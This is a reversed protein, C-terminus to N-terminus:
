GFVLSMLSSLEQVQEGALLEAGTGALSAYEVGNFIEAISLQTNYRLDGVQPTAPRSDNDGKPLTIGATGAFEVYGTGLNQFIIPTSANLNTLESVGFSLDDMIVEGTGNPTLVINSNTTLTSITNGSISLNNDTDLRSVTIGSTSMTMATASNTTFILTNNTPHTLVNTLKNASYVGSFSVTATSFGRFLSDTTNFRFEGQTLTTRDATTGVPVQLANTGSIVLNSTPTSFIIGENVTETSITTGNFKVKELKPGGTSIGSLILNDDGVITTIYNDNIEINNNTFFDSTITGSNTLGNTVLTGITAAQSFTVNDNFVVKGTGAAKLSLDTDATDTIVRNTIFAIDDFYANSDVDLTTSINRNGTQLTNGTQLYNGTLDLTSLTPTVGSIGIVTSQLITAGNVTLDQEIEVADNPVFIIGAGAALLRLNNNGVTTTITNTSIEIDNDSFTDSSITGSNTIGNTYTTSNVRLNQNFTANDDIDIIGSGAAQLSLDTDATFVSLVNNVIAIDEFYANSDVDLTSSINRNGTQLTVDGVQIYDGVHTIDSTSPGTASYTVGSINSVTQTGSTDTLYAASNAVILLLKTNTSTTLVAAPVSISAATPDYYNSGVALKIQTLYGTFFYSSGTVAGILGSPGTYNTTNSTSGTAKVGDLFVSMNNVSDRTVAIHHWTNITIPSVTYQAADVYSRDIQITTVPNTGDGFLWISMGGSSTAGLITQLGNSATYFFCEFTFAQTGITQAASLSLYNSGSFSLSSALTTSGIVTNKLNTNTLVTLNQTIEVSDLDARVLGTTAAGLELDNNGVTTQIINDEITIDGNDFKNATTTGNVTVSGAYVTDDVTVNQSVLVNDSPVYIEGIGAAILKLDTGATITSITNTSIRVNDLEATSSVDLTGTQIFIWRTGGFSRYIGSPSGFTISVVTIAGALSVDVTITKTADDDSTLLVGSQGWFGTIVDFGAVVSDGNIVTNGTQNIDGTRNVAGILDVAGTINTTKLSTDASVTLDNEIVTNSTISVKRTGNPRLELDADTALSEITHGSIKLTNGIDLEIVKTSLWQNAPSGLNYTNTISPRLDYEVDADFQVLDIPQNGLTLTGDVNFDGIINIDQTANVDQFLTMENTAAVLNIEDIYSSLTNSSFQLNGTAVLEANILTESTASTFNISTTGSASTAVGGITTNGTDFSVRFADGVHFNGKNDLSQYYIKGGGYELTENTSINLSPDNNVDTGAGIYAFNHNILYMLCSPGEVQAGVNGYVNASSISRLEAGYRTTLTNADYRGAGNLAYLGINAFYTFSNLWEVRVGNTMTLGNANPVIFTVSHFLMSAEKTLTDAVGGDVLAGRGADLAGPITETTIVSINQVYPSRTFVRMGAAFRFAYGTNGVSDYYFDKISLDSVTTEGNLLFVDKNNTTAAPIITVSRIGMGKVHVGAPVTLPTIETYTGPYIYVVDGPQAQLLAHKITAYPANQHDGENTNSGSAAVYLVNGPRLALNATGIGIGTTSITEGNLLLPWVGQWENGGTSNNSGLSHTDTLNPVINSNVNASFTITDTPANGIILNGSLTINGQAYLSNSNLVNVDSHVELTGTGNPELGISANETLASITNNALELDDTTVINAFVYNAATLNLDNAATISNGSVSILLSTLGALGDTSILNSTNTTGNVFLNRFPSEENVGVYRNTTNLYLLGNEFNLPQGDRSLDAKLLQGSIRGLTDAM